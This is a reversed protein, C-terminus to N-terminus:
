HHMRQYSNRFKKNSCSSPSRQAGRGLFAIAILLPNNNPFASLDMHNPIRGSTQIAPMNMPRWQRHGTLDKRVLM